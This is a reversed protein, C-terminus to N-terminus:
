EASSELCEAYSRWPEKSGAPRLLIRDGDDGFYGGQQWARIDGEPYPGFVEVEPAVASGTSRAAAALYSPSWKYEWQRAPFASGLGGAVTASADASGADSQEFRSAPDFNARVLGSKRVDSLLGEYAQDYIHMQGFRSMLVSSLHTVDELHLVAPAKEQSREAASAGAAGDVDMDQGTIVPKQKSPRQKREGAPKHKKAEKGLRQLTQLVTEGRMMHEVLRKKVEDEDNDEQQERAEKEQLERERKRQAERAARIKSRSYNGSLWVDHDAHPDRANEVYNGEEDFKGTQMEEKMNFGTIKIGPGRRTKSAKNKGKRSMEAARLPTGGPSTPPTKEGLANLDIPEAEEGDSEELELDPDQGEDSDGSGDVDSEQGRDRSKSSFEQGEIEGLQLFRKQQKGKGKGSDDDADRDAGDKEGFMDEDDDDDENQSYSGSKAKREAKRRHTGGDEEDSSESEYGSTILRGKRGQQQRKRDQEELEPDQDLNDNLLPGISTADHAVNDLRPKKSTAASRSSPTNLASAPNPVPAKRKGTLM